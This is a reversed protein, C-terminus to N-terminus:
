VQSNIYRCCPYEYCFRIWSPSHISASGLCHLSTVLMMGYASTNSLCITRM